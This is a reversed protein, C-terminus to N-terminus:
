KRKFANNINRLARKLKGMKSIRVYPKIKEAIEEVSSKLEVVEKVLNYLEDNTGIMKYGNMELFISTSLLATRKNADHFPHNMALSRLYCAAKSIIDPYLDQGDFSQQPLSVASNFLNIDKIGRMENSYRVQNGYECFKEDIVVMHIYMVFELTLYEIEM